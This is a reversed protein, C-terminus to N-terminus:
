DAKNMDTMFGENGSLEFLQNIVNYLPQPKNVIRDCPVDVKSGEVDKNVMPCYKQVENNFLAYETYMFTHASKLAVTKWSAPPPLTTDVWPELNQNNIFSKKWDKSMVWIFNPQNNGVFLSAAGFLPTGDETSRWQGGIINLKADLELDYLMEGSDMKDQAADDTINRRPRMWDVYDLRLKIGLLFKSDRNRFSAFPDDAFDSRKVISDFLSGYKKTDVNFYNIEYGAMPHNDVPHKLKKEVIFSRQQKGILNVVALHLMGPHVGVCRPEFKKSFRDPTADYFRGFKDRKPFASNCRLGESRTFDQAISNAFMLSALAKLDEPFFTLKKGKNKGTLEVSFASHPRPFVGSATAWGHCIGEWQSMRSNTKEFVYNEAQVATLKVTPHDWYLKSVFSQYKDQGYQAAYKWIRNTLDFSEDGILLDYKESPALKALEEESLKGEILKPHFKKVRRLYDKHNNRWSLEDGLKFINIGDGTYPDAITGKNLPWYTSAWPQKNVDRLQFSRLGLDEIKVVSTIPTEDETLFKIRKNVEQTSFPTFPYIDEHSRAQSYASTIILNTTVSLMILSKKLKLNKVAFM